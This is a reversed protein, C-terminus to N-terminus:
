MIHLVLLNEELHFVGEGQEDESHVYRQVQLLMWNVLQSTKCM